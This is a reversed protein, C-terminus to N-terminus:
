GVGGQEVGLQARDVEVLWIGGQRVRGCGVEGQGEGCWLVGCCGVVGM